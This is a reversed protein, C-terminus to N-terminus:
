ARNRFHLYRLGAPKVFASITYKQSSLNGVQQNLRIQSIKTQGLRFQVENYKERLSNVIELEKESFKQENNKEEFKEVIKSDESM